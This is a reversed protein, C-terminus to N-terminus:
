LLLFFRLLIHSNGFVLLHVYSCGAFLVTLKYLTDHHFMQLVSLGRFPSSVVSYDPYWSTSSIKYLETSGTWVVVSFVNANNDAYYTPKSDIKWFINKLSRAIICMEVSYQWKTGLGGVMLGNINKKIAHVTCSEM